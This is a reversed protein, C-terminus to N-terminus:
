ASSDAGHLTDARRALWEEGRARELTSNIAALDTARGIHATFPLKLAGSV